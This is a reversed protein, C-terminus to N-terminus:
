LCLALQAVGGNLFQDSPLPIADSIPPAFGQTKHSKFPESFTHLLELVTNSSECM